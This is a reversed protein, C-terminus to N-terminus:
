TTLLTDRTVESGNEDDENVEVKVVEKFNNLIWKAISECSMSNFNCLKMNEDWYTNIIKSTVKSKYDIFEVQRDDHTVKLYMIFNFEHRHQHSLYPVSQVNNNPWNHVGYLKLKIKLLTNM